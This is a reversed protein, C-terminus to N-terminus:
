RTVVGDASSQRSVLRARWGARHVAQLEMGDKLHGNALGVCHEFCTMGAEIAEELTAGDPCHGTVRLGADAAARSLARVADLTLLSYAKIQQYGREAYAHVLQSAQQPDTLVPSGPWLQQGEDDLGDILPSTTVLHPGPFERRRVKERIALHMPFGWMNRVLTVGNALFMPADAPGQYHVHMDALGPMLFKHSGDVVQMRDVSVQAAPGVTRIRGDEIVVTQEALVRESDMPVVTVHTIAVPQSAPVLSKLRTFPDPQGSLHSSTSSEM